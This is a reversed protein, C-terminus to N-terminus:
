ADKRRMELLIKLICEEKSTAEASIIKGNKDSVDLCAKDLNTFDLHVFKYRDLIQFLQTFDFLPVRNYRWIVPEKEEQWIKILEAENAECYKLYDAHFPIEM